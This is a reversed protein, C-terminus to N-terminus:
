FLSSIDKNYTTSELVNILNQYTNIELKLLTLPFRINHINFWTEIPILSESILSTKCYKELMSAFKISLFEYGIVTSADKLLTSYFSKFNVIDIDYFTKQYKIVKDYFESLKIIKHRKFNYIKICEFNDINIDINYIKSIKNYMDYFCIFICIEINHNIYNKCLVIKYM